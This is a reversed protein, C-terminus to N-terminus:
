RGRQVAALYTRLESTGPDGLVATASGSELIRSKYVFHVSDACRRVWETQHSILLIGIGKAKLGLLLDSVDGAIEPDLASTIEDLVLFRPAMVVARAIAVRQKEGGSLSPPHKSLLHEIGLLRSWEHAVPLAHLRSMGKVYILGELINDLATRYPWLRLDQFVMGVRQRAEIAVDSWPAVDPTLLTGDVDITGQTITELAAVCRALTTKGSGSAGILASIEGPALQLSVADLITRDGFVKGVRDIRIM